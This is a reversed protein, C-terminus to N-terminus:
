SPFLIEVLRKHTASAQALCADFFDQQEVPARIKGDQVAAIAKRVHIEFKILARPKKSKLNAEIDKLSEALLSTWLKLTEPVSPFQDKSIAELFSGHIRESATQYVKIRNEVKSERELKAREAPSFIGEPIASLDATQLLLCLSFSLSM